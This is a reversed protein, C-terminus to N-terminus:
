LHLAEAFLNTGAGGKDWSPTLPKLPKKNTVSAM